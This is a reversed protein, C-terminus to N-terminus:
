CGVEAARELGGLLARLSQEVEASPIAGGVGGLVLRDDAVGGATRLQVEVPLLTLVAIRSLLRGLLGIEDNASLQVELLADACRSVSWRNLLPPTTSRQTRTSAM